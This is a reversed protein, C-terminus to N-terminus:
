RGCIQVLQDLAPGAGALDVLIPEALNGDFQVRAQGGARIAARMERSTEAAMGRGRWMAFGEMPVPAMAVPAFRAGDVSVQMVFRDPLGTGAAMLAWAPTANPAECSLGFCLFNGTAPDDLPCTGAFAQFQGAEPGVFTWGDQAMVPAGSLSSVALIGLVALRSTM